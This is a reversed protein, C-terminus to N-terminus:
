LWERHQTPMAARTHTWVGRGAFFDTAVLDDPDDKGSGKPYYFCLLNRAHVLFSELVAHSLFGKEPSNKKFEGVDWSTIQEATMRLMWVEYALTDRRDEVGLTAM